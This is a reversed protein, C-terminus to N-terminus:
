AQKEWGGRPNQRWYTAAHGAARVEKWLSRAKALAEADAGDFLVVIREYTALDEPPAAGEVLVRLMAGNPRGRGATLVVTERSPDAEADTVHPLFSEDAYTWLADDLAALREPTAVQVVARWGRELTRELLRPLVAELPRGELHYFLVETM